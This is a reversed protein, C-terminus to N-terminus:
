RPTVYGEKGQKTIFIWKYNKILHSEVFGQPVDDPIFARHTDIGHIPCQPAVGDLLWPTGNNKMKEEDSGYQWIEDWDFINVTGTCANEPAIIYYGGFHVNPYYQKIVEIMGQAYAFGMSHCVIDLTDGNAIGLEQMKSVFIAGATRGNKKRTDFGDINPTENLLVCNPNGTCKVSYCPSTPFDAKDIYGYAENPIPSSAGELTISYKVCYSSLMSTAFTMKDIHNSTGISMHGDAYYVYDPHRREIFMKDIGDWYDYGDISLTINNDTEKRDELPGRYGNVFLMINKTKCTVLAQLLTLYYDEMQESTPTEGWSCVMQKLKGYNDCSRLKVIDDNNLTYIDLFDDKTFKTKLLAEFDGKNGINSEINM